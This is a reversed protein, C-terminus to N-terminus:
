LGLITTFRVLKIKNGVGFLMGLLSRAPQSYRKFWERYAYHLLDPTNAKNYIIPSCWDGQMHSTDKTGPSTAKSLSGSGPVLSPGIALSSTILSFTMKTFVYLAAFQSHTSLNQYFEEHCFKVSIHEAMRLNNCVYLCVSLAFSIHGNKCNKTTFTGLFSSFTTRLFIQNM